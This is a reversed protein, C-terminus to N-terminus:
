CKRCRRYHGTGRSCLCSGQRRIACIMDASACYCRIACIVDASACDCSVACIM